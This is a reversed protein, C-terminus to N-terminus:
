YLYSISYNSGSGVYKSNGGSAFTPDMLTWNKGNFQIVGNVWGVDKIYTSLWAHYLGGSVYGVEMRTPIGQARLMATMVAAFDFCIGKGSKLISDVKPTYGSLKGAAVQAAKDNDYSINKIVYDYVKAVVDLEDSAGKALVDSQKVVNSDKTFSIFQNPYLFPLMSNRLKVSVSCTLATSYQNGSVQQYVEIKYKGDGSTLPFADYKGNATIDFTYTKKGSKTIRFKIKKGSNSFKAMVYGENANSVDVTAGGGTYTTKGPAETILVKSASESLPTASDYITVLGGTAAQVSYAFSLCMGAVLIVALCFAGVRCWTKRGKEFNGESRMM